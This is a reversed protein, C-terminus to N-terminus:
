GALTTTITVTGAATAPLDAPCETDRLEAAATATIEVCLRAVAATYTGGGGGEGRAHLAARLVVADGDVRQDFVITDQSVSLVDAAARALAEGTPADPATAVERVRERAQEASARVAQVAEDRAEDDASACATLCSLAVAGALVLARVSVTAVPRSRTM